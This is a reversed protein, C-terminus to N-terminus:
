DTFARPSEGLAAKAEKFLRDAEKQDKVRSYDNMYEDATPAEKIWKGNKKTAVFGDDAMVAKNGNEIDESVLIKM